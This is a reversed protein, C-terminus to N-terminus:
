KSRSIREKRILLFTSGMVFLAIVASILFVLVHRAHEELEQSSPAPIALAKLAVEAALAVTSDRDRALKQLYQSSGRDGIGAFVTIANRRLERDSSTSWQVAQEFGANEQGLLRRAKFQGVQIDAMRLQQWRALEEKSRKDSKGLEELNIESLRELGTDMDKVIKRYYEAFDKSAEIYGRGNWKYITPWEVCTVHATSEALVNRTIIEFNRDADIDKIDKYINGWHTRFKQLKVSDDIRFILVLMVPDSTCRENVSAIIENKRDHNLDKTFFESVYTREYTQVGLVDRVMQNLQKKDINTNQWEQIRLIQYDASDSLEVVKDDCEANTGLMALFVLAVLAAITLRDTVM